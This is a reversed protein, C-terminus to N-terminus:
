YHNLNSVLPNKRMRAELPRSPELGPLYAASNNTTATERAIEDRLM